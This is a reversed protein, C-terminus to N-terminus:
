AVLNEQGTPREVNPTCANQRKSYAEVTECSASQTNWTTKKSTKGPLWGPSVARKPNKPCFIFGSQLIPNRSGRIEENSVGILPVLRV